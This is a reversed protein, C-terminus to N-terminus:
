YKELSFRRQFPNPDSLDRLKRKTQKKLVCQFMNLHNIEALWCGVPEDVLQLYGLNGM